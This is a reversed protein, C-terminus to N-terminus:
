VLWELTKWFHDLVASYFFAGLVLLHAINQYNKVDFILQAGIFNCYKRFSCTFIANKCEINGLMKSGLM